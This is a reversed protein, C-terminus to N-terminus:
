SVGFGGTAAKRAQSLAAVLMGVAEGIVVLTGYEPATISVSWEDPGAVTAEVVYSPSDPPADPNLPFITFTLGDQRPAGYLM